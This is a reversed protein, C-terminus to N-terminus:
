AHLPGVSFKDDEQLIKHIGDPDFLVNGAVTVDESKFGLPKGLILTPNFRHLWWSGM